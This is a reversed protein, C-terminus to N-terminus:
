EILIIMKEFLEVTALVDGLATHRGDVKINFYKFADTSSRMNSNIKKAFQLYTYISYTDIMRHLFMKSFSRRNRQFLIKLFSADFYTNHGALPLNTNDFYLEKIQQLRKIVNIQPVASINHIEINLKNKNLAHETTCFSNNRIFMQESHIVSNHQDWVAIGLSLLSHKNPELGGTETDIFLLRDNYEFSM